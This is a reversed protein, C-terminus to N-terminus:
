IYRGISRLLRAEPDTHAELNKLHLEACARLSAYMPWHSIRGVFSRIEECLAIVKGVALRRSAMQRTATQSSPADTSSTGHTQQEQSPRGHVTELRLTEEFLRRFSADNKEKTMTWANLLRTKQARGMRFYAGLM